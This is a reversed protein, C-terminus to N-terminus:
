FIVIKNEELKERPDDRQHRQVLKKLIPLLSRLDDLLYEVLLPLKGKRQATPRNKGLKLSLVRVARRRNLSVKKVKKRLRMRCLILDNMMM